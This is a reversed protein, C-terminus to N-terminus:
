LRLDSASRAFVSKIDCFVHPSRGYSRLAEIGMNRYTEHAVSLIVADCANKEPQKVLELGYEAQEEELDAWPDHVDVSVGYDRLESIVDVVRTNRLDPCDEKFTLGLVLARAGDVQIRRRPMAKVMQGAVYAGMGDKIRRGALIVQPHYGMAEAEHTLYYPDVGICPRGGSQSPLASLEM